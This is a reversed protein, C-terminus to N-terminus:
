ISSSVMNGSQFNIKIFSLLSHFFVRCSPCETGYISFLPDQDRDKDRVLTFINACPILDWEAYNCCDTRNRTGTGHLTFVDNNCDSLSAVIKMYEKQKGITLLELNLVVLPEPAPQRRGPM